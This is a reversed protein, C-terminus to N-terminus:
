NDNSKTGHILRERHLEMITQDVMLQREEELKQCHHEIALAVLTTFAVGAVFSPIM